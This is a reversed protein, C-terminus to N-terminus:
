QSQVKEWKNIILSAKGTSSVGTARELSGRVEGDARCLQAGPSGSRM